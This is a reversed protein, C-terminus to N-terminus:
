YHWSYNFNIKEDLKNELIANICINQFFINLMFKKDKNKTYDSNPIFSIM